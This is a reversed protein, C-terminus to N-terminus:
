ARVRLPDSSAKEVTSSNYVTPALLTREAALFNECELRQLNRDQHVRGLAVLPDRKM